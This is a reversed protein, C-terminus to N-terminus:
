RPHQRHVANDIFDDEKPRPPRNRAAASRLAYEDLRQAKM